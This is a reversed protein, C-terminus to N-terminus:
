MLASCYAYRNAANSVVSAGKVINISGVCLNTLTALTEMMLHIFTYKIFCCSDAIHQVSASQTVTQM